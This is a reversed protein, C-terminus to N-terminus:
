EFSGSAPSPLRAPPKPFSEARHVLRELTHVIEKATPRDEPAPHWCSEILAAVEKPCDQPSTM